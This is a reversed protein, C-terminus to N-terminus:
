SQRHHSSDIHIITTALRISIKYNAIQVVIIDLDCKQNVARVFGLYLHSVNESLIQFSEFHMERIKDPVKYITVKGQWM